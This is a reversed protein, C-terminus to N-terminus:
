SDLGYIKLDEIGTQAAHYEEEGSAEEMDHDRQAHNDPQESQAHSQPQESQAHTQSHGSPSPKKPPRGEPDYGPIDEIYDFNYPGALTGNAEHEDWLAKAASMEFHKYYM